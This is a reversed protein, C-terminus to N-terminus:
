MWPYGTEVAREKLIETEKEHKALAKNAKEDGNVAKLWLKIQKKARKKQLKDLADWDYFDIGEPYFFDKSMKSRGRLNNTPDRM